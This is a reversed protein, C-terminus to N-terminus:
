KGYSIGFHYYSGFDSGGVENGELLWLYGFGLKTFLRFGKYNSSYIEPGLYFSWWDYPQSTYLNGHDFRRVEGHHYNLYGTFDIVVNKNSLVRYGVGVDGGISNGFSSAFHKRYYLSPSGEVYSLKPRFRLGVYYVWNGKVPLDGKRGIGFGSGPINVGFYTEFSKSDQASLGFCCCCILVILLGTQSKALTSKEM